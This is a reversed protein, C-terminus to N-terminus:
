DALLVKKDLITHEYKRVGSRSLGTEEAGKIYLTSGILTIACGTETYRDEGNIYSSHFVTTDKDGNNYTVIIQHTFWTQTKPAPTGCSVLSFLALAFFAKKM